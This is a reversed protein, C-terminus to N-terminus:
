NSIDDETDPTGDPGNSWIRYTDETVLEYQYEGDWPDFPIEDELYPGNWRGSSDTEEILATLGEETTPYRRMQLQYFELAGKFLSIQAKAADALAQKQAQRIFIGVMSGLIVLIVLVLLVEM